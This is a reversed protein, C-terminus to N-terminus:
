NDPDIVVKVSIPINTEGASWTQLVVRDQFLFVDSGVNWQFSGTTNTSAIITKASSLSSGIGKTTALIISLNTSCNVSVALAKGTVGSVSVSNTVTSTSVSDQPLAIVRLPDALALGSAVLGALAVLIITRKM